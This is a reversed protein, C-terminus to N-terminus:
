KNKDTLYNSVFIVTEPDAKMFSIVLDTYKTPKSYKALKAISDIYEQRAIQQRLELLTTDGNVYSGKDYPLDYGTCVFRDFMKELVYRTSKDALKRTKEDAYLFHHHHSDKKFGYQGLFKNVIENLDKTSLVMDAPKSIVLSHSDINDIYALCQTENGNVAYVDTSLGVWVRKMGNEKDLTDIRQQNNEDFNKDKFFFDVSELYGQFKQKEQSIYYVIKPYLTDNRGAVVDFDVQKPHLTDNRGSVVVVEAYDEVDFDFQASGVMIISDSVSDSPRDKSHGSCAMLITALATIIPFIIYRM